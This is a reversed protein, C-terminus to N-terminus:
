NPSHLIFFNKDIIKSKPNIIPKIDHEDGSSEPFVSDPLSVAAGSSRLPCSVTV